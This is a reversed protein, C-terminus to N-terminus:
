RWEGELIFAAWYYPADWGKSKWLAIQAARLAAAPREGRGLMGEYFRKMAEETTRDDVEWLTAAVRPAGAYLFGRTLGILGEGKIEEGLATRCASLVVLDAGLRLNYIDYLRLFGNRPRGSRDVLSLVVGSLEPHENNLLSHTAFHVIRYDALDPNMATERSADFDIAKLTAAPDALRSIEEAETRSFRLRAFDQMDPASVARVRSTNPVAIRPDDPQFVPDALVALLKSAPKRGGTQQRLLAVVSASPATVIEHNVILPADTGPEPLVGFPLYKLVGEAVILLRKHELYGAAPDLLMRSLQRAAIPYATDALRVRAIRAAPTEGDRRLNRATLLDYVRRAAAEIDSAPPLEFAQMSSPTVVWLVSRVSGLSYELLVTDEDVVKNQIEKLGLPAAQTLGAYRPSAQRIRSQLQELEITLSDLEKETAVAEADSHKSSLLRTQLEAKASILRNLERERDLLAADVGNRIEVGSENLMELLGRARSRECALLAAAGFGGDPQRAHLRILMEIELEQTGRMSAVFSARLSPSMVKARISESAALAEGAREAASGNNGLSREVKALEALDEAEGKRDRIARSIELAEELHSGARGTDGSERAVVGAGRLSRALMYRNGFTRHIALAREMHDRAKDWEGLKAYTRGINLLSNAEGDADGTARRLSLAEEHIEIAKRYAGLDADISAINNLTVAMRRRDNVKRILELSEQFFKLARQRDGLQGYVWAINNLNISVHWENELARNIELAETYTDLAKQFEGLGTYASAVNNLAIAETARDSRERAIRLEDAHSELAHEYEGLNDYVLGINGQVEALMRSDHLSRFIEASQRYYALAKRKDGMGSFGVGANEIANAEGARDGAARLLPLARECYEVAKRKDSFTNHVRAIAELARGMVKPDQTSEAVQLAETTYRLANERDAIEIYLLGITFLSTAQESRDRAARWHNLSEEGYGIALRYGDRTGPLRANIAKAFARTAAVRARRRETSPQIERLAVEYEGGASRPAPTIRLRFSGEIDAIWEVTEPDGIVNSDLSFIENGGPGLCTVSVDVSRQEVVVRAYEGAHLQLRYEHSQGDALIAPLSNGPELAVQGRLTITALRTGLLALAFRKASHRLNGEV